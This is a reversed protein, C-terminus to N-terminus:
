LSMAGSKMRGKLSVAGSKMRRMSAGGWKLVAGKSEGGWKLVAGKSEGGGSKLGYKASWNKHNITICFIYVMFIPLASDVMYRCRDNELMLMRHVMKKEQVCFPVAKEM